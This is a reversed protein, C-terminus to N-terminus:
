SIIIIYIDLTPTRKDKFLTCPFQLAIGKYMRPPFQGEYFVIAITVLILYGTSPLPLSDGPSNKLELIHRSYLVFVCVSGFLFNVPLRRNRLCSLIVKLWQSSNSFIIVTALLMFFSCVFLFFLYYLRAFAYSATFSTGLNM